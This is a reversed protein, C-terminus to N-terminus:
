PPIVQIDSTNINRGAYSYALLNLTTLVCFTRYFWGFLILKSFYRVLLILEKIVIFTLLLGLIPIIKELLVKDMSSAM